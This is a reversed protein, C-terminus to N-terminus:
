MLLMSSDKDHDTIRNDRLQGLLILNSKYESVLAVGELKISAGDALAIRVTKVGESLHSTGRRNYLGMNKATGKRPFPKPRQHSTPIRLLRPVM